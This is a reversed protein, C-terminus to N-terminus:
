AQHPIASRRATAFAPIARELLAVLTEEGKRVAIEVRLASPPVMFGEPSFRAADKETTVIAEALFEQAEADIRRLEEVRYLHHDPFARFRVVDAGLGALTRRFGEPNGIGAFACVKRGRLWEPDRLRADSLGRLVTPRHITEIVPRDGGFQPRLRDLIAAAADPPAQDVRTLLIADARAAASLPERLLGRPLLRGNSFPNTADIVLLNLDRALRVHQFGDDLIVAQARYQEVAQRAAQVRDAGTVRVVSPPLADAAPEEDDSAAPGPPGYGRAVIAVRLGSRALLRALHECLPTKGTGGATLNGVSVVPAGASHIRRLGHAYLFARLRVGAGYLASAGSLLAKLLAGRRSPGDHELFEGPTM